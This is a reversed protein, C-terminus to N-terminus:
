EYIEKIRMLKQNRYYALSRTDLKMVQYYPHFGISDICFSMILKTQFNPDAVEQFLIYGEEDVMILCHIGPQDIQNKRGLLIKDDEVNENVLYPMNGIWLEKGKYLFQMQGIYNLIYNYTKSNSVIFQAPGIRGETAMLNSANNFKAIIARDPSMSKKRIKSIDIDFKQMLDTASERHQEGLESLKKFYEKYLENQIIETTINKYNFCVPNLHLSKQYVNPSITPFSSSSNLLGVQPGAIPSYQFDVFMVTTDPRITGKITFFKNELQEPRIKPIM